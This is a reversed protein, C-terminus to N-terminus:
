LSFAETKNKQKKFRMLSWFIVDQLIHVELLLMRRRLCNLFLSRYLSVSLFTQKQKGQDGQGQIM